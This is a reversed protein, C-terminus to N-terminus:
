RCRQMYVTSIKPRIVKNEAEQRLSKRIQTFFKNAIIDKSKKLGLILDRKQTRRVNDRSNILELVAKVIRLIGAYSEEGRKSIIIDERLIRRRYRKKGLHWKEGLKWMRRPPNM